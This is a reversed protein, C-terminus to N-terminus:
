KAAAILATPSMLLNAGRTERSVQLQWAVAADGAGPSAVAAGKPEGWSLHQPGVHTSSGLKTLPTPNPVESTRGGQELGDAPFSLGM